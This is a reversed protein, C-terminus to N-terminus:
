SILILDFVSVLNIISCLFHHDLKYYGAIGSKVLEELAKWSDEWSGRPEGKECVLRAGPGEDCDMAHILMLDIYDM